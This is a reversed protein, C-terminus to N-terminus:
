WCNIAARRDGDNIGSIRGLQLVTKWAIATPLCEDSARVFILLTWHDPLWYHLGTIDMLM